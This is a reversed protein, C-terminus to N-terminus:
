FYVIVDAQSGSHSWGLSLIHGRQTESLSGVKRNHGEMVEVCRRDMTANRTEFPSLHRDSRNYTTLAGGLAVPFNIKQGAFMLGKSTLAIGLFRTPNFASFVHTSEKDRPRFVLDGQRIALQGNTLNQFVSLCPNLWGLDTWVYPEMPNMTPKISLDFDTRARHVPARPAAPVRPAGPYLFAEIAKKTDDWALEAIFNEFTAEPVGVARRGLEDLYALGRERSDFMFSGFYNMSNHLGEMDKARVNRVTEFAQRTQELTVDERVFREREKLEAVRQMVAIVAFATPLSQELQHALLYTDIDMSEDPLSRKRDYKRELNNEDALESPLDLDAADLRFESAEVQNTNSAQPDVNSAKREIVNAEQPLPDQNRYRRSIAGIRQRAEDVKKLYENDAASLSETPNKVEQESPVQRPLELAAINQGANNVNTGPDRQRALVNEQEYNLRQAAVSITRGDFPSENSQPGIQSIPGDLYEKSLKIDADSGAIDTLMQRVTITEDVVGPQDAAFWLYKLKIAYLGLKSYDPVQVIRDTEKLMEAAKKDAGSKLDEDPLGLLYEGFVTLVMGQRRNLQDEEAGFKLPIDFALEWRVM